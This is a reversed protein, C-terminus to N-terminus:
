SRTGTFNSRYLSWCTAVPDRVSHVIISEPFLLRIFGLSWFNMPLKDTVFPRDLNRNLCEDVYRTRLERLKEHTAPDSQMPSRHPDTALYREFGAAYQPIYPLEGGASVLSHCALIQELLSTGSRPMGVIFISRFPATSATTHGRAPESYLSILRAARQEHDHPDYSIGRERMVRLATENARHYQNFAEEIQGAAEAIRGLAFSANVIESPTRAANQVFARMLGTLDSDPSPPAIDALNFMAESLTSDRRLAIEYLRAAEHANGRVRELHAQVLCARPDSSCRRQLEGVLDPLDELRQAAILATALHLLTECDGPELSRARRFATLAPDWAGLQAHSDGVQRWLQPDAPRARLMAELARLTEYARVQAPTSM